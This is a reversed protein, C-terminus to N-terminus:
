AGHLRNYPDSALYDVPMASYLRLESASREGVTDRNQLYISLYPLACAGALAGVVILQRAFRWRAQTDLRFGRLPIAVALATALFITYYIGSLLQLVLCAGFGAMDTWRYREFARDLFWVALPLFVTAQLELHMYHDFRFTAFAFITGAVLAGAPSGTLRRALVYMAMGSCLISGLITLNYVLVPSAGARIFPTAILGQLLVADTYALTRLEPHFINADTLPAPSGLAHAIWSLRWISLLADDFWPVHTRLHAAQPWTLAVTLAGFLILVGLGEGLRRSM